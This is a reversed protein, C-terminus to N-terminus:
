EAEEEYAGKKRNKGHDELSIRRADYGFDLPLVPAMEAGIGWFARITCLWAVTDVTLSWPVKAV